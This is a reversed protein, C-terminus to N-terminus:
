WFRENKYAVFYLYSKDSDHQLRKEGEVQTIREGEYSAVFEGKLINRKVFIGYGLNDLKVMIMLLLTGYMSSDSQRLASHSCYFNM